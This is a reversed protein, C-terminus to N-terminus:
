DREAEVWPCSLRVAIERRRGEARALLLNAINACAILLVLGSLILLAASSAYVARDAAPHIAINNAPILRIGRDKNTDPYMGQLVRALATMNTKAQALTVGPKLRGMVTLQQDRRDQLGRRDRGIMIEQSSIPIWFEPPVVKLLGAFTPEAVGIITAPTTSLNLTQGVVNPDGGFRRQWTAYSIVAVPAAGPQDDEGHFTKGIRMKVGLVDFYNGSVFEGSALDTQDGRGLVTPELVSAVM